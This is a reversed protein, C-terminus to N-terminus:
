RPAASAAARAASDLGHHALQPLLRDWDARAWRDDRGPALLRHRPSDIKAVVWTDADVRRALLNRLDLNGDRFGLRHLRGILDGIAAALRSRDAADLRPLLADVSEGDFAETVLVARVLFGCRRTEGVLIPAPAPLGNHRLWALADFEAAARSRAWPGTRHAFDRLRSTWSLYEYVKVFYDRDGIHVERVWSTRHDTVVRGADRGLVLATAALDGNRM